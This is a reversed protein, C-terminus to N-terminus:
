DYDLQLQAREGRLYIKAEDELAQILEWQTKGYCNEEEEAYPKLAPFSIKLYQNHIYYRGLLQVSNLGGYKDYKWIAGMVVISRMAGGSLGIVDIAVDILKTLIDGMEKRAVESCKLTQQSNGNQYIITYMNTKISKELRKIKM